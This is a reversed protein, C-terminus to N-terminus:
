DMWEFETDAIRVTDGENMGADRLKDIVGAEVLRRQFYSFSETDSLVIGRILNDVLPGVVCFVGNKSFVEFANKDVVEELTATPAAAAIKPLKRLNEAAAKILESVGQGTVASIEFIKYKEEYQKKFEAIRKPDAIETKNLAIIQPKEALETSYLGLEKNIIEFDNIASRGDQESIDIVHILLRTRSVHKLFDIGLGTGHSAGAILGPLDAMIFSTNKDVTVVGVNPHLTTFHYNGIKPNARRVVSLLTSKGVNPFGVLGVDAITNLELIVKYEKTKVGSQSFNPTQRRSTAFRANGRGGAGGRLVRFTQGSETIDALLDGENISFASHQTSFEGCEDQINKENMRCESKLMRCKMIRTGLPVLIRLDSGAAGSRNRKGGGEGDMATFKKAFRFNILNDTNTDGVFVVDGGKGGDGGDPGGRQTLKDRYFSTHGNGGNGAKISIEVKDLFM